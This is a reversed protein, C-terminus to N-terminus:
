SPYQEGCAFQDSRLPNPQYTVQVEARITTNWPVTFPLTNGNAGSVGTGIGPGSPVKVFNVTRGQVPLCPMPCKVGVFATVPCGKSSISVPANPPTKTASLTVKNPELSAPQEGAKKMTEPDTGKRVTGRREEVAGKKEQAASLGTFAALVILTLTMTLLKKM